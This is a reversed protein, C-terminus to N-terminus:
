GITGREPLDDGTGSEEDACEVDRVGEDEITEAAYRGGSNKLADGATDEAPRGKAHSMASSEQAQKKVEEDGEGGGGDEEEGAVPKRNCRM